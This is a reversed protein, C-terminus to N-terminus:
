NKFSIWRHQYWQKYDVVEIAVYRDTWTPDTHMLGVMYLRGFLTWQSMEDLEKKCFMTLRELKFDFLNAEHAKCTRWDPRTISM